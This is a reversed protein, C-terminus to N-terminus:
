ISGYRDDDNTKMVDLLSKMESGSGGGGSGSGGGDARLNKPSVYVNHDDSSEDNEYEIFNYDVKKWIISSINEDNLVLHKCRGDVYRQLSISLLKKYNKLFHM